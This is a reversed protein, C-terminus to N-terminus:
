DDYEIKEILLNYKELFEEESISKEEFDFYKWKKDRYSIYSKDFHRNKEYEIKYNGFAKIKSNSFYYKWNKSKVSIQFDGHSDEYNVIQYEGQSIVKGDIDYNHWLGTRLGNILKGEEAIKGNPHFTKYPSESIEIDDKYEIIRYIQGNDHYHIQQGNLAGNRYMTKTKVLGNPFYEFSENQEKNEKFECRSKLQGDPYWSRWTGTRSSGYHSNYKILKRYTENSLQGNPHWNKWYGNIENKSLIVECEKSGDTRYNISPGELMNNKIHFISAVLTNDHKFFSIWKGDKPFIQSNGLYNGISDYQYYFKLPTNEYTTDQSEYLWYNDDQYTISPNQEWQSYGVICMLMFLLSTGLIKM